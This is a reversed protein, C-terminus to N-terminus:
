KIFTYMTQIFQVASTIRFNETFIIKVVICRSRERKRGCIFVANVPFFLYMFLCKGVNTQTYGLRIRRSKFNAAFQELERLKGDDTEVEDGQPAVTSPSFDSGHDGDFVAALSRKEEADHRAALLQHQFHPFRFRGLDTPPHGNEFNPHSPFFSSFSLSSHAPNPHIKDVIHGVGINIDLASNGLAPANFPWFFNTTSSSPVCIPKLPWPWSSSSTRTKPIPRAPLLGSASPLFDGHLLLPSRRPCSPTSPPSSLTSDKLLVKGDRNM